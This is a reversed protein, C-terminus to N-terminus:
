YRFADRTAQSYGSYLAVGAVESGRKLHVVKKLRLHSGHQLIANEEIVSGGGFKTNRGKIEM